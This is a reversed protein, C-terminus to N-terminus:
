GGPGASLLGSWVANWTMALLWWVGVGLVAGLVLTMVVLAVLARGTPRRVTM